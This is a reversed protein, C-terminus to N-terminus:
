RTLQDGVFGDRLKSIIQSVRAPDPCVSFMADLPRCPSKTNTLNEIQPGTSEPATTNQGSLGPHGSQCSKGSLYEWRISYSLPPALVTM